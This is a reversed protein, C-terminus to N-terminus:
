AERKLENRIYYHIKDQDVNERYTNKKTGPFQLFGFFGEISECGEKNAIYM